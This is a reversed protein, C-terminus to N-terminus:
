ELKQVVFISKVDTLSYTRPNNYGYTDTVKLGGEGDVGIVNVFHSKTGDSSRVDAIISVEQSSENNFYKLVSQVDSKNDIQSVNYDMGTTDKLRQPNLEGGRQPTFSSTHPIQEGV